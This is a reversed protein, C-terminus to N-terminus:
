SVHYLKNMRHLFKLCLHGCIFTNYKQYNTYNYVINYGKLYIQLEVPPRIDGYSDFYIVKGRNKYYAVWHTGEGKVSDLNLIGCEM